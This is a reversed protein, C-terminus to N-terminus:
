RKIEVDVNFNPLLFGDNNEITIEARVFTQGNERTAMDAIKYVEGNYVKSSDAVPHIIVKAGPKVDKIFEEAINVDIFLGDLDMISLLKKDTSIIDGSKYGIEYVLGNQLESIINNQIIYNRNLKERLSKLNYELSALKEKQIKVKEAEEQKNHQIKDMAYKIDEMNKRKSDLGKKQEDLQQKPIYGSNYLKQQADFEEQASAYLEEAYKLDNQLKQIDPNDGGMKNVKDQLSQLEMQSVKLEQEIQIVQFNYDTFDLTILVDEKKVRQGEEVNVKEVSSPFDIIINKINKSKVTGSADVFANEKKIDEAPANTQKTEEACSSMLAATIALIILIMKKM